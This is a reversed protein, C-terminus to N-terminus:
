ASFQAARAKEDISLWRSRHYGVPNPVWGKVYPWAMYPSAWFYLPVTACDELLLAEAEALFVGRRRLDVEQESKALLTDFAPNSYQGWNNGGGTRFLDLFTQADNFDAVWGAEALDFDHAQTQGMFVPFDTPLIAADVYILTLMQQIAAAVARYIGATSSRIKFTTSVRRDPGYGAGQMLARAQAIRQAAPMPRFDFQNGGPFNAIGPPVINYAPVDGVRRVRGTIVERNLALNIARRVRVDGFPARRVNISIYEVSLEPIPAITEPMNARIWEIQEPPYRNQTDLEGARMRKLAAAYDDTPYYVVKEIAVNASDYFRPNKTLTVHDNAVWERLIYAGNSVLIGPRTWDKGHAEVVHRPQPYLTMHTLMELLYPAPHELTVELRRPDPAAVGLATVPVKGANVLAANKVPYLFYAYPAATKPDVLRRWAFAFDEATVPAGDSWVADRLHFTWVKGDPSTEWSSAMGAIPRAAADSTMLGIFLDATIFDEPETQVQAPDLTGPEGGNGRHLTGREFAVRRAPAGRRWSLAALGAAAAAGVGLAIRRNFAM